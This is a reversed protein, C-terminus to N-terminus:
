TVTEDALLPELVGLGLSDDVIRQILQSRERSSMVPGEISLLSGLIRELRARRQAPALRGLEDLDIEELLRERYRAILDDPETSTRDARNVRDRLAM